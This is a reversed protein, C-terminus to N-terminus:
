NEIHFIPCLKVITLKIERISPCSRAINEHVKRSSTFNLPFFLVSQDIQCFQLRKTTERLEKIIFNNSFTESQKEKKFQYKTRNKTAM